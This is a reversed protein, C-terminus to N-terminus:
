VLTLTGPLPSRPGSRACGPPWRTTATSRAPQGSARPIKGPKEQIAEFAAPDGIPLRREDRVYRVIAEGLPHESGREATAILALLEDEPPAGDARVAGRGTHVTAHGDGQSIRHVPAALADGRRPMPQTADYGEIRKLTFRAAAEFGGDPIQLRAAGVRSYRAAVAASDAAPASAGGESSDRIATSGDATAM